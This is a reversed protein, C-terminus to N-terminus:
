PWDLDILFCVNHINPMGIYHPRPIIWTTNLFEQIPWKTMDQFFEQEEVELNEDFLSLFIWFDLLEEWASRLKSLDYFGSLFDSCLYNLDSTLVIHYHSYIEMTQVDFDMLMVICFCKFLFLSFSVLLLWGMERMQM